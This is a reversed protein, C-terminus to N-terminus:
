KKEQEPHDFRSAWEVFEKIPFRIVNRGLRRYPPVSTRLKSPTNKRPRPRIYEYLTSTSIELYEAAEKATWFRRKGNAKEIQM